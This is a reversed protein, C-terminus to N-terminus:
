QEKKQQLLEVQLHTLSYEQVSNITGEETTSAGSAFTHSFVRTTGAPKYNSTKSILSGGSANKYKNAGLSLGSKSLTYIGM